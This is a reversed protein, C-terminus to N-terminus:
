HRDASLMFCCSQTTSLKGDLETHNKNEFKHSTIKFVNTTKQLISFEFQVQLKRALYDGGTSYLVPM